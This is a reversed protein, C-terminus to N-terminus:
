EPALVIFCLDECDTNQGPIVASMSCLLALQLVHVYLAGECAACGEWDGATGSYRAYTATLCALRRM